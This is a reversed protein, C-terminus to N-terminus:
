DVDRNAAVVIVGAHASAGGACVEAANCGGHRSGHKTSMYPRKKLRANPQRAAQRAPQKNIAFAFPRPIPGQQGALQETFQLLLLLLLKSRCGEREKNGQVKPSGVKM